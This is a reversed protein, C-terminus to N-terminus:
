PAPLAPLIDRLHTVHGQLHKLRLATTPKLSQQPTTLNSSNTSSANPANIINAYIQIPANLRLEPKIWSMALYNPASYIFNFLLLGILLIIAAAIIRFRYRRWFVRIFKGIPSRFWMFLTHTRLPPHLTPYQNPESQGRGAAKILAEKETLIELTMKVKGSLRWKGGDLVQCPWWGAVNKMKFLSSHKHQLFHPWKPDAELMRVSCLRAHPAPLPMDSLDLELVGIFDDTSIINNDWVQIILRAPFKTVTPDLSWIYDKESLVCVHEAALYDLTFIFRWNFIGEGTLSRYHVDTKQMDKELGFLWGKVYIDNIRDYSLSKEKPDVLTTKWIVCRLEYRKPKRPGINVPPGPPGLKKPFIDVWMQVKGQDIGPQSDSYLTRTEVHEPVLGQTHLLYLALREKKSGLFRARPPKLEFSQLEFKKGNYYVSDGEPSFLPPPLGKRKAHHELLLSPPMQDRWRFPGSQCYSKSLGCRAGFGSLLRDELDIVTTGIMDDPSFLDFDYLQIELDKELPITCSLEFMVGFIPDLTNPQYKDRNGLMTQGLKLIVYPDCLGNFDQPQLHFARVIYVRVLCQQPFDEKKPWLPFQRPPKPAEPNEPFPYVRFQGKFEGVVPSDLRPWEQYLKFTQCFDQLGQFAPVAELECDYVKLTHYDKYKYKLTQPADGTAWFLKSWWDVEQDYEDQCPSPCKPGQPLPVTAEEAGVRGRLQGPNNRIGRPQAEMVEAKSSKFWFKEYLYGLLEQYKKVSLTPPRPPVYDEAWPDCFYPQLSHVNAQGVVTEQGFDQNDVVKLVLPLAFTEETPMYLTLLLASQAFNPNTQFDRIPETQLSEEWCEVLLQPSRVQKMNRLGWVLMEIAMKRLTPQISKPLIYIGNKWPVSLMPLQQRLSETELILECSALIEGEEDELGKVLPHWRMPPLIRDQADLWVVPHWISRGWLTENGQPDRQWLELVVCPPSERTDQPNEYLLLHQFILTQAWTPATSSKLTQTCQSHNLFVLRIFPGQFTQVHSSMLNRAQYIYCFLQYYHPKNFVCYIFPLSPTQTIGPPARRSSMIRDLRRTSSVMDARRAQEKMDTSLSGELLFIPAIGKVKNPALRRHWCRRRFRSQPEPNLHFKSGFVGYEWGAEDEALGPHHLQLFSLTEQEHSLQGHDRYRVRAWRRRRRSYYTKEVSNWVQPLGSPPIGVGYEWGENDVAHNLEVAWTQKVHWGQPCKVIERAEVPEGNVDTNPIAAPVWAGVADRRQNEYVEELVQSKNIDTDLLLRRQPEVTWPGAWHWGPPERFDEKPLAKHGTVDSFNPRHQLFQQGWQDKFKAQNEYTEAYVVVEGQRLLELDRSDTVNGLWMCVRLQAPLTDKEGEGEPYQLFLTQTKGCFRGSHRAGHPSFLISHAPVQAYAARQERAMLWIMVDPLNMQPEPLVANLRYLWGEATAVMDRPPAQKAKQALEQLLLRHLKWRNKDLDTAKPQSTMCPLPRKCDEVLERLLKEWQPLLAPDRPNRMSKLTDLNAKLRDRTFQLLNLCNMRFGVDEWFSTVAVVPKTNYWPVYHYINGDYIVPSYQTTSVLPKYSLDMKNGYHGISVEFQILDKFDPMMTCSLFIVCLGYKQRNQHKEVSIVDLSLDKMKAEQRSKIHTILELFVRGRYALGDKVINPINPDEEKMRFPAKKGGRLTLFSPGFCPLFGSYMGEIEAGTSSIQNLSLSVTGIEDNCRNRPCDLVRFKIYSSLCPLQIRFTLIQNWIPSETQTQVHTKLKEGILEVELMPSVSYHKKLHLDEACYIFFQLYAISIPVVSSKFIRTDTDDVRYILKQDVPAQDGVGLACITVKLYGRVGSNRENPQCLGLWKRLLTHGPCNYIFGIDTQFRGIEANFRMVSSNMVQILIIEDFFKMPAEYFNQFFIENFFPNNGIKIRSHHQHGGIVVKVVPKIDNGMLQRAEFVQVRVQFHQPKPSLAKHVTASPFMLKQKAVEQATIALLDEDGIKEIDKYTMLAAQLTVTCETPMMSHNLLTLDNVFLIKRPKKVLPKLLVTAMGIFREKKVSGMDRLTIQLFSDKQLPHNWLHWILTENWVPHNGEVERTTRKVDRFYVSVCPRPPPSLPPSIKASQMILRLM